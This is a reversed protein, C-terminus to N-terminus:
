LIFGSNSHEHASTTNPTNGILAVFEDYLVSAICLAVSLSKTGPTYSDIRFDGLASTNSHRMLVVLFPLIGHGPIVICGSDEEREGPKPVYVEELMLTLACSTVWFWNSDSHDEPSYVELDHLFTKSPSACM